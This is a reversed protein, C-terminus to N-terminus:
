QSLNRMKKTIDDIESNIKSTKVSTNISSSTSTSPVFQKSFQRDRSHDAKEAVKFAKTLFIDDKLSVRKWADVNYQLSEAYDLVSVQKKRKKDLKLYLTKYRLNFDKVKEYKKIRLARLERLLVNQDEKTGYFTELADVIKKFSPYTDETEEESSDNEEENDTDEESDESGTHLEQIVERVEGISTLVCAIYIKKADTVNELDIWLQIESAWSKIDLHEKSLKEIDKLEKKLDKFNITSM